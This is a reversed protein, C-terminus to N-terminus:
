ILKHGLLLSIADFEEGAFLRPHLTDVLEGPLSKEPDAGLLHIVKRLLSYLEHDLIAQFDQLFNFPTDSTLGLTSPKLSSEVDLVGLLEFIFNELVAPRQVM